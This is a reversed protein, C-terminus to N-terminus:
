TDLTRWTNNNNNHWRTIYEKETTEIHRSGRAVRPRRTGSASARSLCPSAPSAPPACLPTNIQKYIYIYIYIYVCVYM